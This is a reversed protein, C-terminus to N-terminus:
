GDLYRVFLRAYLVGYEAAMDQFVTVDHLNRGRFQLLPPKKQRPGRKGRVPTRLLWNHSCKNRLRNLEALHHRTQATLLKLAIALDLKMDFGMSGAGNLLKVLARGSATREHAKRGTPGVGFFRCIIWSTLVDEIATHLQLVASRVIDDRKRELMSAYLMADGDKDFHYFHDDIAAIEKKLRSIKRRLYPTTSARKKTPM